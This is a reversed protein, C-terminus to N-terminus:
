HPVVIAVPIPDYWLCGFVYPYFSSVVHFIQFDCNLLSFIQVNERKSFVVPFCITLFTSATTKDMYFLWNLSNENFTKRKKKRIQLYSFFEGVVQCIKQSPLFFIEQIHFVIQNLIVIKLLEWIMFIRFCIMGIFLKM